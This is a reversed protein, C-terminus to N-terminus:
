QLFDCSNNKILDLFLQMLPSIWKNKHHACVATITKDGIATPIEELEGTELETQVTFAPLFSVGVDSKVLNKITPISWLEITHDLIISNERLYQEFIQRFICNPENIIFPVQIVRDPTIFDPCRKKIEPSAVLAMSYSGFPYTTLGAGFGGVDEYFIGLDLTGNLLENRIEYCNMSRLFLRAKPAQRHFEKLISPFRYCLLTEGIGIHLDGQCQSLNDEFFRLKDVSQLIEDVYPILHEGAKTLVMKRGIKEFLVTSLEQELQGIQFTITSQTYNLKEAAKSFGGEEIITRFTQLYKIEM